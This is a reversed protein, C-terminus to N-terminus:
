VVIRKYGCGPCDGKVNQLCHGCHPCKGRANWWGRIRAREFWLVFPALALCILEGILFVMASQLILSLYVLASGIFVFLTLWRELSSAKTM